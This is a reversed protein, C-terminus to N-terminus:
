ASERQRRVADLAYVLSRITGQLVNVFGSIPAQIGGVVQALLVERSPLDALAGVGAADIVKGDVVGGKITLVRSEKAFGAIIRAPSVPDDYGFAIATPGTLYQGLEPLDAKEAALKTLTNKVVRYEIGEARLRRRLENISKVNLGRYDTLVAGQTRRLMDAIREVEAVKEPRPV